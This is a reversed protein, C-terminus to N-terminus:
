AGTIWKKPDHGAFNNVTGPLLDAGSIKAKPNAGALKM